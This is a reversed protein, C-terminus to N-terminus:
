ASLKSDKDFSKFEKIQKRIIIAALVVSLLDSGPFACFIGNLGLFKPFIFLMPIFFIIQRSLSLITGQLPKGISQFFISAIFQFGLFPLMMSTIRLAKISMNMLTDTKNHFLSIFINPFLQISLWTLFLFITSYLVSLHYTKIIRGYQKAGYNYGIIPQIGQNLGQLPMLFMIIISFVIGMSTVAIDGGYDALERNLFANVIGMASQTIFPAFGIAMIKLSLKLELKMFRLRFRLKTWGSNFYMMVWVFSIFQSIVTAWAAGEIGWNFVFIFIPDLIINVVAGLIQTFMSTKPHGDSRIFHNIGPGVAGFIGGILIVRMYAKAYVFIDPSAKLIDILIEDIFILCTIIVLSPIIFLLAFAHGMIKEVQRRRRQGLRISFLANAGVGILISSAMLIVMIPMVISIAGIGLPDIGYSVYIRDVINYVSNVIMGIIAPISFKFILRSIKGIGLEQASEISINDMKKGILNELFKCEL